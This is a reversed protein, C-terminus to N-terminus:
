ARMDFSYRHVQGMSPLDKKLFDDVFNVKQSENKVNFTCSYGKENLRKELVPLFQKVLAYSDDNDFCFNTDVKKKLMKISVDTSGLNDMDLHLFASLERDPDSINKKNTYVYLQGSANQSNMQLPLQVYTYTQNVQNMFEINGSINEALTAAPSNTQGAAKLINEIKTLQENMKDYLANIKDSSKELNEPKITWQQDIADKLLAKFADSSYLERLVKSDINANALLSKIDSLVTASPSDGSYAAINSKILSGLEEIDVPSMLAGLTHEAVNGTSKENLFNELTAEDITTNISLEGTSAALEDWGSSETAVSMEDSAVKQEGSLMQEDLLMNKMDATFGDATNSATKGVTQASMANASTEDALGDTIINLIDRGTTIMRFLSMDDSSLTSPLENIFEDMASTIAQKDNMYNELQSANEVSIALGLKKLDILTTINIGENAQALQFMQNLSNKDIPMQEQMMKNVMSLNNGDVPLGAAKLAELLTLNAGSGDVTYPRIAVSTGDNSKVQFFVSKGEEFSFKGELRATLQQGNSLALRVQGGRVSNVTGEFIMGKSLESVSSVLKKVGKAGTMPEGNSVSNNYQQVLNSIQM